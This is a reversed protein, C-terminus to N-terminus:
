EVIANFTNLRPRLAVGLTQGFWGEIVRYRAEGVAM